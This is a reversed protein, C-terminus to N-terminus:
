RALGPAQSPQASVPQLSYGAAEAPARLLQPLVTLIFTRIALRLPISVGDESHRALGRERLQKLVISTLGADASGGM